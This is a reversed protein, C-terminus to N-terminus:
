RCRRTEPYHEFGAPRDLNAFQGAGIFLLSLSISFRLQTSIMILPRNYCNNILNRLATNKVPVAERM